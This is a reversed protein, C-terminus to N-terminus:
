RSGPEISDVDMFLQGPGFQSRLQVYLSQAVRNPTRGAASFAKGLM